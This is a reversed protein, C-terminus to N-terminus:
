KSNARKTLLAYSILAIILLLVSSFAPRETNPNSAFILWLFESLIGGILLSIVIRVWKKKIDM